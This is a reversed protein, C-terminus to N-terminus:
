GFRSTVQRERDTMEVKEVSDWSAEINRKNDAVVKATEAIAATEQRIEAVEISELSKRQLTTIDHMTAAPLMRGEFMTQFNHNASRTGLFGVAGVVVLLISLLGMALRLKSRISMGLFKM